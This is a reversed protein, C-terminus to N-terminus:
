ESESLEPHIFGAVQALGVALRPGPRSLLDPHIAYVRGNRVAPIISWTPHKQLTENATFTEEDTLIIIVEPQVDLVFEDSVVAASGEFADTLNEGGAARIAESAYSERGFAYLVDDGILLLTRPRPLSETAAIVDNVTAEFARAAPEGDTGLLSGMQRMAAPISAIDGFSFFYTPIGLHALADADHPSNIDATAFLLDPNLEVIREHDPPFSTFAPLERVEPPFTDAQSAALLHESGGIAYAIETLNPALSLVGGVPLVLSMSRGSADTVVVEDVLPPSEATQCAAFGFAMVALFLLILNSRAM